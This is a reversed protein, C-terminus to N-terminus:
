LNLLFSVKTPKNHSPQAISRKTRQPAADEEQLPLSRKRMPNFSGYDRNFIDEHFGRANIGFPDRKAPRGSSVLRLLGDALLHGNNIIIQTQAFNCVHAL